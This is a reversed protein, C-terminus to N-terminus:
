SFPFIHRMVETLRSCSMQGPATPDKAYGYVLSSGILGLGIREEPPGGLSMVAVKGYELLRLLVRLYGEKAVVAVKFTEARPFARILEGVEEVRPVRDLYHASVIEGDTKVGYRIAFKAEVDYTIELKRLKSLLDLKIQPDIERVGGEEADRFTVILKKKLHGLSDLPLSLPDEFYDVRLEVLDGPISVVEKLDEPQRVPLSCVVKPRM